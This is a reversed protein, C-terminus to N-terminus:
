KYTYKGRITGLYIKTGKVMIFKRCKEYHVKYRRKFYIVYVKNASTPGGGSMVDPPPSM